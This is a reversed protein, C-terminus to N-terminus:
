AAGKIIGVNVLATRIENLLTAIDAFNNNINNAVTNSYTTGISVLAGDATGIATNTIAAQNAGSPQVVPTTNWFGIKQTTATGIKTGTTTGVVINAADALTHTGSTIPGETLDLPTNGAGSAILGVEQLSDLLDATLAPQDVPDANWFSLLQNTNTGIKTGTTSSLVNSKQARICDGKLQAATVKKTVGSDDIVLNDSDDPTAGLDTLQGITKAM